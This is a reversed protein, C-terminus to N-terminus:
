GNVGSPGAGNEDVEFEGSTHVESAAIATLLQLDFEIQQTHRATAAEEDDAIDVTYVDQSEIDNVDPMWTQADQDAFSLAQSPQRSLAPPLLCPQDNDDTLDIATPGPMQFDLEDVVTENLYFRKRRGDEFCDVLPPLNFSVLPEQLMGLISGIAHTSDPMKGNGLFANYEDCAQIERLIETTNMADEDIDDYVHGSRLVEIVVRKSSFGIVEADAAEAGPLEGPQAPRFHLLQQKLELLQAKKSGHERNSFNFKGAFANQQLADQLNMGGQMRGKIAELFDPYNKITDFDHAKTLITVQGFGNKTLMRAQDGHARGAAQVLRCISMSKGYLLVYHSPVRRSSRYSLGRMLQSYGFVFIPRKSYRKDINELIPAFMKDKGRYRRTGWPRADEPNTIVAQKTRWEIQGGSVVIAVANPYQKLLEDAKNYISGEAFVASTTADLVLARENQAASAWLDKVNQDIYLNKKHLDNENLFIPNGDADEPPVFLETGVYEASAEVYFIDDYPVSGALKTKVLTLYIAFLTASVDFKILPSLARLRNMAKEMLIAGDDNESTGAETRYFDDAEDIILLYQFPHGDRGTARQAGRSKAKELLGHAAMMAQCSNNVVLCVGQLLQEVVWDEKFAQGGITGHRLVLPAQRMQGSPVRMLSTLTDTEKRFGYCFEASPAFYTYPSPLDCGSLLETFKAFLDDRGSTGTTLLLTSVGLLRGMIFMCLKLPTKRSQCKGGGMMLKHPEHSQCSADLNAVINDHVRQLFPVLEFRIASTLKPINMIVQFAQIVKAPPPPSFEDPSKQVRDPLPPLAEDDAAGADDDEDNRVLVIDRSNDDNDVDDDNIDYVEEPVLNLLKRLMDKLVKARKKGFYGGEKVVPHLDHLWRRIEAVAPKRSGDPVGLLHRDLAQTAECMLKKAARNTTKEVIKLLQKVQEDYQVATWLRNNAEVVRREEQERLTRQQERQKDQAERLARQQERQEDQAERLARQQERQEAQAARAQELIEPPIGAHSQLTALLQDM